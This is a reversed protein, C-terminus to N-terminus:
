RRRRQPLKALAEEALQETTRHPKTRLMEVGAPTLSPIMDAAPNSVVIVGPEGDADDDEAPLRPWGNCPNDVGCVHPFPITCVHAAPVGRVDPDIWEALARLAVGVILRTKKLNM